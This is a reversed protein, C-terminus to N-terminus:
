TGSLKQYKGGWHIMFAMLIFCLKVDAITPDILGLQCFYNKNVYDKCGIYFEM